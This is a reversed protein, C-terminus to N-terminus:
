LLKRWFPHTVVFLILEKTVEDEPLLFAHIYVFIVTQEDVEPRVHLKLIRLNPSDDHYRILYNLDYCISNLLPTAGLLLAM